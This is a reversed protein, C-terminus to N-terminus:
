AVEPGVMYTNLTILLLLITVNIMQLLGPDIRQSLVVGVM